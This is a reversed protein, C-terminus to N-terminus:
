GETHLHGTFATVATRLMTEHGAILFAFGYAITFHAVLTVVPTSM